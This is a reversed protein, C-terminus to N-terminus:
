LNLDYERLEEVNNTVETTQEIYNENSSMFEETILHFSTFFDRFYDNWDYPDDVFYFNEGSKIKSSSELM